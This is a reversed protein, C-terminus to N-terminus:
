SFAIGQRKKPDLIPGPALVNKAQLRANFSDNKGGM